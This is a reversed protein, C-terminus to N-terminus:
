RFTDGGNKALETLNQLAKDYMQITAKSSPLSNKSKFPNKSKEKKTVFGRFDFVAVNLVHIENKLKASLDHGLQWVASRKKAYPHDEWDPLKLMEPEWKDWEKDVAPWAKLVNVLNNATKACADGKESLAKLQADTKKGM